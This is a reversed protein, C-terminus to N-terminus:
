PTSTPSTSATPESTPPVPTFTDTPLPTLSPGGPTYTPVPTYSARDAFSLTATFTPFSTGTPRPTDTPPPTYTVSPTWSPPLTPAVIPTFTPGGPTISPTFTMSPTFTLSPTSTATATPKPQFLPGVVTSFVIVALIIAVLALGAILWAEMVQGRPKPVAQAGEDEIPASSEGTLRNLAARAKDNRPNISLVRRLAAIREGTDDAGAAIWMWVQELNPFQESLPILIARAEARRGANILAIAQNLQSALDSQSM